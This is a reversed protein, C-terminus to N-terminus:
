EDEFLRPPKKDIKILFEEADSEWIPGAVAKLDDLLIMREPNSRPPDASVLVPSHRSMRVLTRLTIKLQRQSEQLRVSEDYFAALLDLILIPTGGPIIESLLAVMQYCTFSRSIKIRCLMENLRPTYRRIQKAVQYVNFHNGGDIVTIPGQLCLHAALALMQGRAGHQGLLLVLQLPTPSLLANTKMTAQPKGAKM